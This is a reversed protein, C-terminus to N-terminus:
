MGNGAAELVSQIKERQESNTSFLTSNTEPSTNINGDAITEAVPVNNQLTEVIANQSMTAADQGPTTQSKDAGEPYFLDNLDDHYDDAEKETNNSTQNVNKVEEPNINTQENSAQNQENPTINNQDNIPQGSADLMQKNLNNVEANGNNNLATENNEINNEVQQQIQLDSATPNKIEDQNNTTVTNTDLVPKNEQPNTQISTVAGQTSEKTQANNLTADEQAQKETLAGTKAVSTNNEAGTSEIQPNVSNKNIDLQAQETVQTENISENTAIQTNVPATNKNIQPQETSQGSINNIPTDIIEEKSDASNNIINNQQQEISNPETIVQQADTEPNPTEVQKEEVAPQEQKSPDMPQAPNENLIQQNPDLGNNNIQQQEPIENSVTQNNELIQNQPNSIHQTPVAEQTSQIVTGKDNVSTQEINNENTSPPLTEENKVAGTLNDTTQTNHQAPLDLGPIKVKGTKAGEAITKIFNNRANEQVQITQINQSDTNTPTREVINTQAVQATQNTGINTETAINAPIAGNNVQQQNSLTINTPNLYNGKAAQKVLDDYAKKNEVKTSTDVVNESGPVTAHAPQQLPVTSGPISNVQEVNNSDNQNNINAFKEILPPQYVALANNENPMLLQDKALKQMVKDDNNQITVLSINEPKSIANEIIGTTTYPQLMTQQPDTTKLTQSPEDNQVVANQEQTSTINVQSTGATAPITVQKQVQLESNTKAKDCECKILRKVLENKSLQSYKYYSLDPLKGTNLYSAIGPVKKLEPYRKLISSRESRTKAELMRQELADSELKLLNDSYQLLDSSDLSPKSIKDDDIRANRAEVWVQEETKPLKAASEWMAEIDEGKVPTARLKNKVSELEEKLSQSNVSNAQLKKAVADQIKSTFPLTNNLYDNINGGQQNVIQEIEPYNKLVRKKNVEPINPNSLYNLINNANKLEPVAALANPVPPIYPLPVNNKLYENVKEAGIRKILEPYEALINQKEELSLNPNNNIINIAYEEPTIDKGSLNGAIAENFKTKDIDKLKSKANAIPQNLIPVDSPVQLLEANPNIRKAIANRVDPPFPITGNLFSDINKEGVIKKIEPYSKLIGQKLEKDINKNSLYNIIDDVTNLSPVAAPANPVDPIVNTQILTANEDKNSEEAKEIGKKVAEKLALKSVTGDEIITKIINDGLNERVEPNQNLIEIKENTSIDKNSLDSVIDNIKEGIEDKKQNEIISNNVQNTNEALKEVKEQLQFIQEKQKNQEIKIQDIEDLKNGTNLAPSLTNSRKLTKNVKGITKQITPQIMQTQTLQQGNSPEADVNGGLMFPIISFVILHKKILSQKM